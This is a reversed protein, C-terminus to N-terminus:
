HSELVRARMRCMIHDSRVPGPLQNLFPACILWISLVQEAGSLREADSKLRESHFPCKLVTQNSVMKLVCLVSSGVDLFRTM